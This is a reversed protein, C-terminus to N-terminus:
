SRRLRSCRGGSRSLVAGSPLGSCPVDAPLWGGDSLVVQHVRHDMVHGLPKEAVMDAVSQALVGSGPVAGLGEPRLDFLGPQVHRQHGFLGATEAHGGGLREPQHANGPSMTQRQWQGFGQDRVRHQRARSQRQGAAPQGDGLARRQPQFPAPGDHMCGPRQGQHGKGAPGVPDHGDGRQVAGIM